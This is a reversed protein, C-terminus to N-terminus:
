PLAGVLTQPKASVASAFWDREFMIGLLDMGAPMHFMVEENPRLFFLSGDDAERGQMRLTGTVAIPIAFCLRDAPAKGHQVVRQNIQERFVHANESSQQLLVSSFKGETLQSYDQQWHQVAAAHAHVDCFHRITQQMANKGVGAIGHGNLAFLNEARHPSHNSEIGFVLSNGKGVIAAIAQSGYHPSAIQRTGM